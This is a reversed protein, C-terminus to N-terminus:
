LLTAFISIRTWCVSLVGGSTTNTILEVTAVDYWKDNQVHLQVHAFISHLARWIYLVRLQPNQLHSVSLLQM